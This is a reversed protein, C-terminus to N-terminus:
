TKTRLQRLSVPSPTSFSMPSLGANPRSILLMDCTIATVVNCEKSDITREVLLQM